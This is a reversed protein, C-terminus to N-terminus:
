CNRQYALVIVSVVVSLLHGLSLAHDSGVVVEPARQERRGLFL